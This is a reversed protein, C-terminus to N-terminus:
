YVRKMLKKAGLKKWVVYSLFARGYMDTNQTVWAGVAGFYISLLQSPLARLFIVSFSSLIFPIWVSGMGRIAGFYAQSIGFGIESIAALVLYITTLRAVDADATFFNGAFPSIAILIMTAIGMWTTALKVGERLVNNTMNEDLRGTGQGTKILTATSVAFSPQIILNEITIGINHAALANTGGRAVANIYINQALSAVIRESAIPLGVYLVRLGTTSPLRPRLSVNLPFFLYAFLGSLSAVGSALGAGYVGLPQLGFLGLTLSPILIAGAVLSILSYISPPWPKDLSRYVAGLVSNILIAPLGLLRSYTYEYGAEVVEPNGQSVLYLYGKLWLLLSAFVVFTVILAITLTEGVAKELIDRRGSGIAQSCVVMVGGTFIMSGANIIFFLYSALGTAAVATKSLRSVALLSILSLISDAIVGVLMPYALRRVESSM